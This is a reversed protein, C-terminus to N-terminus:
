RSRPLVCARSRVHPWPRMEWMNLVVQHYRMDDIGLLIQVADDNAENVLIVVPNLLHVIASHGWPFRIEVSIVGDVQQLESTGHIGRMTRTSMSVAINLAERQAKRLTVRSILSNNSGTDFSVRVPMTTGYITAPSQMEDLTAIPTRSDNFCLLRHELSQQHLDGENENQPAKNTAAFDVYRTNEASMDVWRGSSGNIHATDVWEDKKFNVSALAVPTAGSMLAEPGYVKNIATETVKVFNLRGRIDAWTLQLQALWGVTTKNLMSELGVTLEDRSSLSRGQLLAFLTERVREPTPRKNADTLVGLTLPPIKMNELMSVLIDIARSM